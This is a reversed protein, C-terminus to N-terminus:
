RCVLMICILIFSLSMCQLPFSLYLTSRSAFSSYTQVPTQSEPFTVSNLKREDVDATVVRVVKDDDAFDNRKSEKTLVFHWRSLSSLLQVLKGEYNQQTSDESVFTVRTEACYEFCTLYSQRSRSKNVKYFRKTTLNNELLRFPLNALLVANVLPFLLLPISLSVFKYSILFCQKAWSFILNGKTSLFPILFQKLITKTLKM